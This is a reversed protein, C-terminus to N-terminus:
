LERKWNIKAWYEFFEHWYPLRYFEINVDHMSAMRKIQIRIKWLLFVIKLWVISAYALTRSIHLILCIRSIKRYVCFQWRKHMTQETEDSDVSLDYYYYIKTAEMAGERWRILNLWSSNHNKNRQAFAFADSLDNRNIENRRHMAPYFAYWGRRFTM